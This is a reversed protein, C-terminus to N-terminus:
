RKGGISIYAIRNLGSVDVRVADISQEGAKLGLVEEVYAEDTENEPIIHMERRKVKLIMIEEVSVM